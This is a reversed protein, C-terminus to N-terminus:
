TQHSGPKQEVIELALLEDSLGTQDQTLVSIMRTEVAYEWPRGHMDAQIVFADTDAQLVLSPPSDVVEIVTWEMQAYRVKLGILARLHPLSLVSM